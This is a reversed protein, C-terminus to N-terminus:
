RRQAPRIPRRPLPRPRRSRRTPPGAPRRHRRRHPPRRRRRPHPLRIPPPARRLLPRPRRSEMIDVIAATDVVAATDIVTTDVVAAAHRQHRRDAHRVVYRRTGSVVQTSARVDSGQQGGAAVNFGGDANQEGALFATAQQIQAAYTGAALSLGQIALAASNTSDGAAGPFGGDDEQQAALWAVGKDVAASASQGPVLALAMVAMATSDVDSDGSDPLLAPWAGAANQLSELYGIPEAANATDGARLQAIVALSQSFTSTAYAYNGKAACAAGDAAPCVLEALAAILDHGGFARPDYGAVEALLAEKGISGGGAYETGIGTWSDATNGSADPHNGSFMSVVKTFTADDADTAALAFAGDITLGWDAWDTFSEYYGDAKLSSGDSVGNASTTTALYGVAKTM